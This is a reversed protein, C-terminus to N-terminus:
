EQGERTGRRINEMKPSPGKDRTISGRRETTRGRTNNLTPPIKSPLPVAPIIRGHKGSRVKKVIRACDMVSQDQSANFCQIKILLQVIPLYKCQSLVDIRYFLQKITSPFSPHQLRDPCFTLRSFPQFFLQY